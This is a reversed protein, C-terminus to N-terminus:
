GCFSNRGESFVFFHYHLSYAYASQRYSIWLCCFSKALARALKAWFYGLLAFQSMGPQFACSGAGTISLRQAIFKDFGEPNDSYKKNFAAAIM